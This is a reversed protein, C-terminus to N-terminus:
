KIVVITWELDSMNRLERLISKINSNNSILCKVFTLIEQELNVKISYCNKKPKKILRAAKDNPIQLTFIMNLIEAKIQLYRNIKNLLFSANRKNNLLTLLNEQTKDHNLKLLSSLIQLCSCFISKSYRSDIDESIFKFVISINRYSGYNKITFKSEESDENKKLVNKLGQAYFCLLSDWIQLNTNNKDWKNIFDFSTRIFREIIKENNKSEKNSFKNQLFELFSSYEDIWIEYNLPLKLVHSILADVYNEYQKVLWSKTKHKRNIMFKDMDKRIIYLKEWEFLDVESNDFRLIESILQKWFKASKCIEYYFKFIDLNHFLM